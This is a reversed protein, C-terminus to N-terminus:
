LMLIAFSSLYHTILKLMRNEFRCQRSIWWRWLVYTCRWIVNFDCQFTFAFYSKILLGRLDLTQGNILIQLSFNPWLINYCFKRNHLNFIYHDPNRCIVKTVHYILWYINLQWSFYPKACYFKAGEMERIFTVVLISM